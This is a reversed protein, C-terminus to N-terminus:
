LSVAVGLAPPADISLSPFDSNMTFRVGPPADRPPRYASVQPPRTEDTIDFLRMFAPPDGGGLEEDFVVVDALTEEVFDRVEVAKGSGIFTHADPKEIRQYTEGVVLLGATDSLLALEALSDEVGLLARRGHVEIGVLFAREVPPKTPLATKPM